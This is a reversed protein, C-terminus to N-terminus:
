RIEKPVPAVHYVGDAYGTPTIRWEIFCQRLTKYWFGFGTLPCTLWWGGHGEVIDCPGWPAQAQPHPVIAALDALLAMAPSRDEAACQQRILRDGRQRAAAGM